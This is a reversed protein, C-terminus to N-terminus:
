VQESRIEVSSNSITKKYENESIISGCNWCEYGDLVFHFANIRKVGPVFHWDHEKCSFKRVRDPHAM